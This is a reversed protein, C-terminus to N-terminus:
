AEVTVDETSKAQCALIMGAAKDEPELGDDVEMSVNGALLKVRCVGCMGVRCSYDIDVGEREAAELVTEDPQLPTSKGSTAFTVAAAVSSAAQTADATEAAHERQAAKIHPKQQSGFNETHIRDTPVDLDVLMQKIADMMPPAGCLHVWKSAIDPVWEALREKTLRGAFYGDFSDKMRSMAVFVHLNANREQLRRLEEQFIFHKTDRCAAIFYIDGQWGMDTLARTISMMPTIGVGGAILVISNAESGTFIFKGSPAQAELTDGEKVHDHLYRSGAGQDERKVSIECYYGQTPSSSITYSRRIPKEGAPLTLTLFQGPLYSFPLAGGHCAVLRFTKVDDTEQFIRAVRLRCLKRKAVRLLGTSIGTGEVVPEDDCSVDSDSCCDHEAAASQSTGPAAAVAASTRPAAVAAPSPSATQGAPAVIPTDGSPSAAALQKMLETARKMKFFYMWIMAAAFAVLVVMIATHFASMGLLRFDPEARAVPLLNMERRFWQIAVNRPAKGEAIARHAALGSEFQALGERMKATANQMTQFDDTSAALALEDLGSSLLTAGDMMRQHAEQQIKTREEMPLDPLDMLKPYLEKPKPAGMKEM